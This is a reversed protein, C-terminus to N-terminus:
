LEKGDPAICPLTLGDNAPRATAIAILTRAMETNLVTFVCGIMCTFQEEYCLMM